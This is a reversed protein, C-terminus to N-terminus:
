LLLQDGPLKVLHLICGIQIHYNALTRGDELHEGAFVLRQKDPPIGEEKEVIAKVDEISASRSVELVIIKGSLTKIYRRPRGELRMELNLTSEEQINYDALTRYDELQEGAFMLRQEYRCIWEIDEIQAKVNDITHSSQVELTITKRIRGGLTKVFIQM